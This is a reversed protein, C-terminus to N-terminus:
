KTPWRALVFDGPQLPLRYCLRAPTDAMLSGLHLRPSAGYATANRLFTPSFADDALWLDREAM